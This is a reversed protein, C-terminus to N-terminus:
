HIEIPGCVRHKNGKESGFDSYNPKYNGKPDLKLDLNNEKKRQM